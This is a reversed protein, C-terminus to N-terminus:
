DKYPVPDFGAKRFADVAQQEASPGNPMYHGSLNNVEAIRGRWVKVIGAARVPKGVALDIHGASATGMVLEGDESLMQFNEYYSITMGASFSKQTCVTTGPGSRARYFAVNTSNVGLLD